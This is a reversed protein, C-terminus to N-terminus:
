RRSAIAAAEVVALREALQRLGKSHGSVQGATVELKRALRDIEAKVTELEKSM